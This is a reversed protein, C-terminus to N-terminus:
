DSRPAGSPMKSTSLTLYHRSAGSLRAGPQDEVVLRLADVRDFFDDGSFSAPDIVLYFQGIDHHEGEPAKLPPIDTSSLSGTLAPM